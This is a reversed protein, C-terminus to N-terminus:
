ECEESELIKAIAATIGDLNVVVQETRDVCESIDDVDDESYMDGYVDNPTYGGNNGDEVKIDRILSKPLLVDKKPTVEFIGGCGSWENFTGCMPKGINWVATDESLLLRAYDDATLTMLFTWESLAESTDNLLEEAVDRSLGAPADDYFGLSAVAIEEPTSGQQSMFWVLGNDARERVYKTDGDYYPALHSLSMISNMDMNQEAETGICVAVNLTKSTLLDLIGTVSIEGLENECLEEWSTMEEGKEALFENVESVLCEESDFLLGESFISEEVAQVFDTKFSEYSAAKKALEQIFSANPPGILEEASVERTVNAVAEELLAKRTTNTTTM